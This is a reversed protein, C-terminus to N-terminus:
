MPPALAPPLPQSRHLIRLEGFYGPRLRAFAADLLDPATEEGSKVLILRRRATGRLVDEQWGAPRIPNGEEDRAGETFVLVPDGARLFDAAASM